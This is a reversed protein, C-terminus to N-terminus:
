KDALSRPMQRLAAVIHNGHLRACDDGEVRQDHEGAREGARPGVLSM